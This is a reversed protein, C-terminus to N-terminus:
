LEISRIENLLANKDREYLKMTDFIKSSFGSMLFIKNGPFQTTGYGALDVSYVFPNANYKKCYENFVNVPSYYGVWGQMDSFIMIRDYKANLASFIAHFNTGGGGRVNKLTQVISLTSDETSFNVYSAGDDFLVIDANNSKALISGLLAGIEFLSMDGRTEGEMSGSHDVVVLTRGEFRPVNNLSIDIARSIGSMLKRVLASDAKLGVLSKAASIYRFPLVLSKKIAKEDTLLKIAHDLEHPAQLLINRLNKLLDFYPYKGSHLMETWAEKKAEEKDVAERGIKSMVAQRTSTSRLTDKVLKKLALANRETPHPHVLNVLDVLKLKKNSAKYKSLQYEDFKSLSAAIGKKFSPAISKVKVNETYYSFIELADDVRIIVKDLFSKNWSEGGIRSFGNANAAFLVASVIHSPTRLGHVTRAYVAAQAAFEADVESVLKVLKEETDKATRYYDDKIFSTLLISVLEFEKSTRYAEGGALNTTKSTNEKNKNFRSM